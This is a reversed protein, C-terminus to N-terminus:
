IGREGSLKAVVEEHEPEEECMHDREESSKTKELIKDYKGARLKERARMRMLIRRGEEAM